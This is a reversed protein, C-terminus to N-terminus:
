KEVSPVTSRASKPLKLRNQRDSPAPAFAKFQFYYIFFYLEKKYLPSFVCVYM